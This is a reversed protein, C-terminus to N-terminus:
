RAKGTNRLIAGVCDLVDRSGLEEAKAVILDLYAQVIGADRKEGALEASLFALLTNIDGQMRNVHRGSRVQWIALGLGIIGILFGAAGLGISLM